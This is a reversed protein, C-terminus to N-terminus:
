PVPIPAKVSSDAEIGRKLLALSERDFAYTGVDPMRDLYEQARACASRAEDRNGEVWCLASRAMWYDGNFWTPKKAELRDWWLRARVADRKALAEEMVFAPLLEAPIQVACEDYLKEAENLQNAARDMQGRDTYYSHALLHLLFGKPGEVIGAAMVRHLADINYDRPRLATVATAASIRYIEHLEAWVGGRLLQYIRAGDSYGRNTRLPVLNGIATMLSISGFMALLFCYREWSSDPTRSAAWLAVVGTVFNVLPGASIMCLERWKPEGLRRPVVATAGGTNLLGVPNLKFKWRGEIHQWLFPGATFSLVKQGLAIGCLAHGFEHLFVVALEAITLQLFVDLFSPNPVGRKYAWQKWAMWIVFFAIFGAALYIRNLFTSTGDGPRSTIEPTPTKEATAPDWRWFAFLGIVGLGLLLRHPALMVAISRHGYRWIFYGVFVPVLLNMVGVSLCWARGSRWKRWYSVAAILFLCGAAPLFASAILSLLSFGSPYNRQHRHWDVLLYNFLVLAGVFAYLSSLLSRLYHM